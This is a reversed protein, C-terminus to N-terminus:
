LVRCIDSRWVRNIIVLKIETDEVERCCTLFQGSWAEMTHKDTPWEYYKSMHNVSSSKLMLTHTTNHPSMQLPPRFVAASPLKTKREYCLVCVCVSVCVCIHLWDSGKQGNVLQFEKTRFTKSYCVSSTWDSCLQTKIVSSLFTHTHTHTHTQLTKLLILAWRLLREREREWESNLESAREWRGMRNLVNVYTLVCVCVCVCM